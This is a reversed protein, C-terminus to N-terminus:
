HLEALCSLFLMVVCSLKQDCLEAPVSKEKVENCRLYTVCQQKKGRRGAATAARPSMLQGMWDWECGLYTARHGAGTCLWCGLGAALGLCESLAPLAQSVLPHCIVASCQSTCVLRPGLFALALLGPNEVFVKLVPFVLNQGGKSTLGEFPM